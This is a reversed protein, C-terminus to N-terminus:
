GKKNYPYVLMPKDLQQSNPSGKSKGKLLGESKSTNDRVVFFCINLHVCVYVCMCVSKLGEQYLPRDNKTNTNTGGKDQGPILEKNTITVTLRGLTTPLFCM